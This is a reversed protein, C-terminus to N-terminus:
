MIQCDFSHKNKLKVFLCLVARNKHVHEDRIHYNGPKHLVDNFVICDGTKPYFTDILKHGIFKDKYFNLTNNIINNDILYYYLISFCPGYQDSDRHIALGHINKKNEKKLVHFKNEIFVGNCKKLDINLEDGGLKCLEYIFKDNQTNSNMINDMTKYQNNQFERIIEHNLINAPRVVHFM